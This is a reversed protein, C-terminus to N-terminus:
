SSGPAVWAEYAKAAFLDEWCIGSHRREQTQDLRVPYWKTWGCESQVGRAIAHNDREFWEEFVKANGGKAHGAEKWSKFRSGPYGPLIYLMVPMARTGTKVVLSFAFHTLNKLFELPVEDIWAPIYGLATAMHMDDFQEDKWLALHTINGLFHQGVVTRTLMKWDFDLRRGTLIIKKSATQGTTPMVRSSEYLLYCVYDMTIIDFGLIEAERVFEDLVLRDQLHAVQDKSSPRLFPAPLYFARLYKLYDTRLPDLHSLSKQIQASRIFGHIARQSRLAVKELLCPMVLQHVLRSVLALSRATRYPHMFPNLSPTWDAVDKVAIEPLSFETAFEIIKIKLENPLEMFKFYPTSRVGGQRLPSFPM